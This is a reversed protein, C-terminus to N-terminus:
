GHVTCVTRISETMYTIRDEDQPDDPRQSHFTDEYESDGKISTTSVEEFIVGTETSFSHFTSREVLQKQGAQLQSKEGSVVVDVTGNLVQFTEEKEIHRHSPHAQNPFQIILKKCYDRNVM